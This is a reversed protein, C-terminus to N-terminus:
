FCYNQYLECNYNCNLSNMMTNIPTLELWVQAQTFFLSENVVLSLVLFMYTTKNFDKVGIEVNGGMLRQILLNFDYATANNDQTLNHLNGINIEIDNIIRRGINTSWLINETNPLMLPMSNFPNVSSRRNIPIFNRLLSDFPDVTDDNNENDANDANTVDGEESNVVNNNVDEINENIWNLINERDLERAFM